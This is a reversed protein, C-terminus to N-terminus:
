IIQITQRSALWFGIKKFTTFRIWGWRPQINMARACCPRSFFLSATQHANQVAGAFAFHMVFRNFSFIFCFPKMSVGFM